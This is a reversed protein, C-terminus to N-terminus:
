PRCKQIHLISYDAVSLKTLQDMTFNEGRWNYLIQFTWKQQTVRNMLFTTLNWDEPQLIFNVTVRSGSHILVKQYSAILRPCHLCKCIDWLEALTNRIKGGSHMFNEMWQSASSRIIRRARSLGTSGAAASDANVHVRPLTTAGM